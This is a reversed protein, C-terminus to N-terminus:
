FLHHHNSDMDIVEMKPLQSFGIPIPTLFFVLPFPFPFPSKRPGFLGKLEIGIIPEIKYIFWQRIAIQKIPNCLKSNFTKTIDKTTITQWCLNFFFTSYNIKFIILSRSCVPNTVSIQIRKYFVKVWKSQNHRM